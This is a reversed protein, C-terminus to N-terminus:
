SNYCSSANMITIPSYWTTPFHKLILNMCLKIHGREIMQRCSMYINFCSVM